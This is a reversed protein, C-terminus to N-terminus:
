YILKLAFEFIRPDLASTVTGFTASGYGTTVASFNPHNFLNFAEGRFQVALREYLPFNKYLSTNVGVQHPGRIIGNAADGFFGPAPAAFSDTSFWETLKGVHQYPAVQNPRTALGATSTSLTPSLAFGSQFLALGAFSWDALAYRKLLNHSTHAYPINYVWSGSLDHTFDYDPPGYESHFNRPNQVSGGISSGAGNTHGGVTALAKEYTYAANVQLNQSRHVLGMQLANYNSVGEDYINNINAFGSYPRTYNASVAGSNICPDFNYEASTGNTPCSALTPAAVPLPFNLNGGTQLELHRGVSGAYTVQLVTAHTLQQELTLSYSQIQSPRFSSPIISLTPASLAAASGATPNTITSNILNATHNFPPNQGFSTYINELPLRTYGIGYGGRISTSGNGFVDYAFGVRPGLLDKKPIFFGSPVGNQGAFIIGNLTNATSGSSTVPQGQANTALTGNLNIVPAQATEFQAPNFSSVQDGSATDSSFYVWRLGLNVTLRPSTKWTDEVYAEGQRYHFAGSRETSDQSYTADLGLLYDAAPDGTHTGTFTFQGEPRTFVNQRKIGFMYVGGAELVHSGRVWSVDDSVIGEGDSAHIPINWLGVSTYGKSISITPIRNYMDAGPYAQNIVAGSPLSGSSASYKPRDETEAIGFTNILNPTLTSSLRAMMNLAPTTITETINSGVYGQQPVDPYNVTTPSSMYRVVLLENPNFYHDVRYQSDFESTVQSGQNLYNLFSTGVIHNPLPMYSNMIAVATPDFCATNLTKQGLVCNTKGESALLATSGPDLKFAGGTLTQSQSFDGNRFAQSFFTGQNVQGARISFWQNSAFFFTKKRDANYVHPIVVPGGFTYGYINQRLPTKITSFYNDADIADNRLYEWASGHFADTGSKTEIVVQGSGALGYKASYNDKLVRFENIGDVIPTVNVGQLSGSNMDYIGDITYTTYEVSSGNVILDSNSGLTQNAGTTSAVGPITTALTQFNRGNLMLNDVQKSSITGANESTETNVQVADASVLVQSSVEGVPLTVNVARRQGPDIQIGKTRSQQFGSKTVTVAYSGTGLGEQSYFGASDTTVTTAVGTAENTILVTAAPIVAGATDAVTGSIAGNSTQALVPLAM